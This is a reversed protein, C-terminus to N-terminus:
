CYQCLLVTHLFNKLINMLKLKVKRKKQMKSGIIKRREAPAPSDCVNQYVRSFRLDWFSGSGVTNVVYIKHPILALRPPDHFVYGWNWVGQWLFILAALQLLVWGTWFVRRRLLLTFPEPKSVESGKIVNVTGNVSYGSWKYPLYFHWSGIKAWKM